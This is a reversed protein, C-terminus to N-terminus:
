TKKVVIFVYKNANLLRMIRDHSKVFVAVLFSFSEGSPSRDVRRCYSTAGPHPSFAPIGVHYSKIEVDVM